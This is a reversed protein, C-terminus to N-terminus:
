ISKNHVSHRGQEGGGVFVSSSSQISEMLGLTNVKCKLTSFLTLISNNAYRFLIGISNTKMDELMSDSIPRHEASLYILIRTRWILSKGQEVKGVLMKMRMRLTIAFPTQADYVSVVLNWTPSSCEKLHQNRLSVSVKGYFRTSVKCKVAQINTGQEWYKALSHSWRQDGVDDTLGM